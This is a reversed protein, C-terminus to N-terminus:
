DEEEQALKIGVANLKAEIENASIRGYSRLNQIEYKTHKAIDKVTKIEAMLLVNTTRTSFGFRQVSTALIQEITKAQKEKKTTYGELEAIIEKAENLIEILRNIKNKEM